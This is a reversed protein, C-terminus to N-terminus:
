LRWEEFLVGLLEEQRAKLVDPTWEVHQLVQSTLAFPVVGRPRHLVQGEQRRLRLEPGGLEQRNLLV